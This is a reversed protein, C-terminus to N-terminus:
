FQVMASVGLTRARGQFADFDARLGFNRTVTYTGAMGFMLRTSRDYGYFDSTSATADDVAAEVSVKALGLKGGFTWAGADYTPTFALWTATGEQDIRYVFTGPACVIQGGPPIVCPPPEYLRSKSGFDVWGAEFGILDRRWGVAFRIGSGSYDAYDAGPTAYLADRAPLETDVSSSAYGVSAWFGTDARAEGGFVFTSLLLM